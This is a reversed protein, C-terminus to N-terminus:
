LATIALSAFYKKALSLDFFDIWQSGIKRKEFSADSLGVDIEKFNMAFGLGLAKSIAEKKTWLKLYADRQIGKPLESLKRLESSSLFLRATRMSIERDCDELDIGIDRGITFAFMAYNKSHSLNFHLDQKNIQQPLFPKGHMNVDFVISTPMKDLLQSCLWRLIGRNIIFKVRLKKCVILAARADEQPTLFSHFFNHHAIFERTEILAVLIEGPYERSCNFSIKQRLNRLEITRLM